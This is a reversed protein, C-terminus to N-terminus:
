PKINRCGQVCARQFDAFEKRMGHRYKFSSKCQLYCRQYGPATEPTVFGCGLLCAERSPAFAKDTHETFQFDKDCGQTCQAYGQEWKETASEQSLAPFAVLMLPLAFVTVLRRYSNM